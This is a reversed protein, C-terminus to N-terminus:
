AAAETEPIMRATARQEVRDSARGPRRRHPAGARDDGPLRALVDYPGVAELATTQDDLLLAIETV